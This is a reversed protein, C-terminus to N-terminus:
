YDLNKEIALFLELPLRLHVFNNNNSQCSGGIKNKLIFLWSNSFSYLSLSPHSFFFSGFEGKCRLNECTGDIWIYTAIIVDKPQDMAMYTDRTQKNLLIRAPAGAM